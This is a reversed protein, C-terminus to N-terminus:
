TKREYFPLSVVRAPLREDRVEVELTQGPAALEAPVYGTGINRRLTPSYLGSAVRGVEHGGHLLRCGPRPIRKGESEFAALKRRPGEGRVRELAARGIFDHDFRVASALGAELPNTSRDLEHGYLPMGAELRLSDRAGLGCPTAGAARLATWVERAAAAPFLFEFGDEGTYGTRSLLGSVGAVSAAAHHYNRLAALDADTLPALLAAARPGQLGVMAVADTVDQLTAEFGETRERIWAFDAASNSANVVLLLEDEFVYVLLDDLVGGDDACLPSYRVRGPPLAAIGNTLLRDIAAARGPGRVRFRGMHALDFLGAGTRTAHHEEVIGSFCLPMKWGAFPVLRADAEQHLPLFPTERLGLASL